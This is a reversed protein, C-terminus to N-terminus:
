NVSLWCIVGILTRCKQLPISDATNTQSYLYLFWESISEPLSNEVISLTNEKTYVEARTTIIEIKDPKKELFVQLKRRILKLNDGSIQNTIANTRAFEMIMQYSRTLQELIAAHESIANSINRSSRKLEDMTSEPWNWEKAISHMYKINSARVQSYNVQDSSGVVTFYFSQRALVSKKPSFKTKLYNEVKRYILFYPDLDALMFNGHYVAKKIGYCPWKITPYESVYYEMLLLKLLSQYPASLSEYLLGFTVNALEEAPVSELGGFDILESERIFRNDILHSIYKDYNDEEHPPVLWWAPSKGAIYIVTLYFEELLLHHSQGNSETSLQTSHGYRFKKSDILWCHVKLRLSAAWSEIAIAKQQLEDIATVSLDSQYCCWIEIMSTKSYAISSVSGALFLGEIPYAHLSAGEKYDFKTAYKKAANLTQISPKYEPIGAPTNESIFGPLMPHNCHFLLPLLEFFVLQDPQLSAQIRRERLQSLHKFRHKIEQLHQRDIDEGPSGLHIQTYSHPKDIESTM